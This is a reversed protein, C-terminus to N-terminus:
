KENNGNDANENNVAEKLPHPIRPRNGALQFDINL